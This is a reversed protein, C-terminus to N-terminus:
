WCRGRAPSSSSSASWTRPAPRRVHARRPEPGLGGAFGLVIGMGFFLVAIQDIYWKWKLVGVVLLVMSAVFLALTSSTGRTGPAGDAAAHPM